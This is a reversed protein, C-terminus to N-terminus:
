VCHRQETLKFSQYVPMLRCLLGGEEKEQRGGGEGMRSAVCALSVNLWWVYDGVCPKLSTLPLLFRQSNKLTGLSTALDVWEHSFLGTNLPIMVASLLNGYCESVLRVM